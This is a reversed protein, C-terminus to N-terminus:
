PSVLADVIAIIKKRVEADEVCRSRNGQSPRVNIMSDFEIWDRNYKAPYVNIGWLNKQQSGHNLLLEEEDAHMEADVVMIKKEVDIVIKVLKEHMKASMKVLESVTINESVLLMRM